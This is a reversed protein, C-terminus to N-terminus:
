LAAEVRDRMEDDPRPVNTSIMAKVADRDFPEELTDL